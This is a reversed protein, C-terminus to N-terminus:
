RACPARPNQGPLGKMAGPRARLHTRTLARAGRVRTHLHVRVCARKIRTVGVCVREGRRMM